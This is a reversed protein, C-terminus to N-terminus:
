PTPKIQIAKGKFTVERKEYLLPFGSIKSSASHEIIADAEPRQALAKHYARAAVSDEFLCPAGPYSTSVEDEFFRIGLVQWKNRDIIQVLGLVYSDQRSSGEVTDLVKLNKESLQTEVNLTGFKVVPRYEGSACGGLLLATATIALTNRLMMKMLGFRYQLRIRAEQRSTDVLFRVMFRAPNKPQRHGIRANSGM